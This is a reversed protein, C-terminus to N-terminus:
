RVSTDASLVTHNESEEFVCQARKKVCQELLFEYHSSLRNFNLLVFHVHQKVYTLPYAVARSILRFTGM